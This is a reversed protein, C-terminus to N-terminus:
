TETHPWGRGEQLQFRWGSHSAAATCDRREVQGSVTV